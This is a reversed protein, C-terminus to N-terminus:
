TGVRCDCNDYDVCRYCMLGSETTGTGEVELTEPGRVTTSRGREKVSSGRILLKCM